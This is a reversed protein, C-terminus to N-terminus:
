RVQKLHIHYESREEALNIDAHGSVRDVHEPRGTHRERTSRLQAALVCYGNEIDYLGIYRDSIDSCLTKRSKGIVLNPLRNKLRLPRSLV